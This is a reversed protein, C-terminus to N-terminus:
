SGNKILDVVEKKRAPDAFKEQNIPTDVTGPGICNIRIGKPAFELAMTETMLKMGGKSAAYHAFHPWPIKKM